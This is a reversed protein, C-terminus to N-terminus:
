RRAFALRVYVTGLGVLVGYGISALVGIGLVVGTGLSKFALGAANVLLGGTNWVANMGSLWNGMRSAAATVAPAQGFQWTAFCVGAFGALLILLSAAQLSGPWTQWARRYWPLASRQEIRAMVRSALSAPAALYPLAKLERDISLELRHADDLNM